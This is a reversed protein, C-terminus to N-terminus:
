QNFCLVCSKGTHEWQKCECTYEGADMNAVVKFAHRAWCFNGDWTQHRILYGNEKDPDNEILFATSNDYERKYENYVARTYVRSLQEDFKAKCARKVAAQFSQVRPTLQYVDVTAILM